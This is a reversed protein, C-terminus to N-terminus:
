SQDKEEDENIIKRIIDARRNAEKRFLTHEIHIYFGRHIALNQLIVQIARGFPLGILFHFEINGFTMRHPHGLGGQCAYMYVIQSSM